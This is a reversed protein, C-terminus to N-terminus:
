NPWGTTNQRTCSHTTKGRNKVIVANKNSSFITIVKSVAINIRSTSLRFAIQSTVESSYLSRSKFLLRHSSIVFIIYNELLEDFSQVSMRTYSFFREPYNRLDKFYNQFLGKSHREMFIPHIWYRKKTRRKKRSLHYITIAEEIDMEISFVIKFTFFIYSIYQNVATSRSVSKVDILRDTTSHSSLLQSNCDPQRTRWHVLLRGVGIVSIGL